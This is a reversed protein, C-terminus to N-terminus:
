GVGAAGGCCLVRGGSKVYQEMLRMTQENLNETCPPLIM